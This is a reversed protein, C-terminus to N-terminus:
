SSELHLTAQIEQTYLTCLVLFLFRL